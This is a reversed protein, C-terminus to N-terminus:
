IILHQNLSFPSSTQDVPGRRSPTAVLEATIYNAFNTGDSQSVRYTRLEEEGMLSGGREMGIRLAADCIFSYAATLKQARSHQQATTRSM